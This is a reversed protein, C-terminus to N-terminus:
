EPQQWALFGGDIASQGYNFMVRTHDNLWWNVGLQWTNQQGCTTCLVITEANDTLSLVDYRALLQWAGHGGEFVPNLVKQRTFEGFKYPRTEGTLFWSAAVYCGWYTPDEGVFRENIDAQLQAYEGQVSWPGWM